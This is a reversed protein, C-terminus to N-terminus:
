SLCVSIKGPGRGSGENVLELMVRRGEHSLNIPRVGGLDMIDQLRVRVRPVQMDELYLLIFIDELDGGELEVQLKTLLPPLPAGNLATDFLVARGKKWEPAGTFVPGASAPLICDIGRDDDINGARPAIMCMADDNLPTKRKQAKSATGAGFARTSMNCVIPSPM